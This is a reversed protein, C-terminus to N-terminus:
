KKRVVKLDLDDKGLINLLELIIWGRNPNPGEDDTNPDNWFDDGYKQIAEDVLKRDAVTM